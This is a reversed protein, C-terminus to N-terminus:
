VRVPTASELSKLHFAEFASGCWCRPAACRVMLSADEDDGTHKLHRHIGCGLYLAHLLVVGAAAAPAAIDGSRLWQVCRLWAVGGRPTKASPTTRLLAAVATAGARREAPRSLPQESGLDGTHTGQMDLSM